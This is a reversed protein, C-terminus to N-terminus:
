SRVKIWQMHCSTKGKMITEEEPSSDAAAGDEEGQDSGTRCKKQPIEKPSTCYNDDAMKSQM